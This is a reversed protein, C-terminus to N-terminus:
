ERKSRENWAPSLKQILGLELGADGDVPLGNWDFDPPSATYILITGNMELQDRILRNIRINTLQSKGPRSYFYLRKSLNETAVGIYLVTQDMVFAYVGDTKPLNHPLELKGETSLQWSATEKFGANILQSVNNNKGDAFTPSALLLTIFGSLIIRISQHPM